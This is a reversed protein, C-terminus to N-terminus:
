RIQEVAHDLTKQLSDQVAQIVEVEQIYYFSLCSVLWMASGGVKQM